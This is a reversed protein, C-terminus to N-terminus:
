DSLLSITKDLSKIFGNIKQELLKKDAPDLHQIASKLVLNQTELASIKEEMKKISITAEEKSQQLRLTSAQMADYKKTVLLLKQQLIKIHAIIESLPM